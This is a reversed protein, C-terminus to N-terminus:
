CVVLSNRLRNIMSVKLQEPVWLKFDLVLKQNEVGWGEGGMLVPYSREPVRGECGLKYFNCISGVSLYKDYILTM